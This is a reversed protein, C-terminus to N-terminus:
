DEPRNLVWWAAYRGTYIAPPSDVIVVLSDAEILFSVLM